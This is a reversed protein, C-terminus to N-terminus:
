RGVYHEANGIPHGNNRIVVHGRHWAARSKRASPCCCRCSKGLRTSLHLAKEGEDQIDGLTDRTVPKVANEDSVPVSGIHRNQLQNRKSGVKLGFAKAGLTGNVDIVRELDLAFTLAVKM